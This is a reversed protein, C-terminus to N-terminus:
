GQIKDLASYISNIASLATNLVKADRSQLLKINQEKLLYFAPSDLIDTQPEQLEANELSSTHQRQRQTSDSFIGTHVNESRIAPVNNQPVIKTM